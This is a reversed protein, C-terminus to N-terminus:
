PQRGTGPAELAGLIAEVLQPSGTFVDAPPQRFRLMDRYIVDALQSNIGWGALYSLRLNSDRNIDAGASWQGLDAKRGTYTAFLATTSPVGVERLSEAVPAYDPRDLRQQVEDVNIKLPEAQGMFVMDYGQGNRTNAWVTANPFSEFFTALESKVTRLDSEYLPVYLSFYGGPNLHAKVADFYEKSYLAATGKAFVDLPDSAIIDYKNKTTLVYHRADDYVIRTRPNNMVEYNQRAFFRTSTPPIVPEIECITIHEIGPYRTFTGASVGAGFGIGLVSKPNPHLLGPLHGVMRQLKMDYIETTAEVHGNVNIYVEGSNWRSIAVSSNRGEATYLITSQGTNIPMRRGYAILEGPIAGIGFLLVMSLVMSAALLGSIAVSRQDRVYPMLATFASIAAIALLVRQSQQTGITPVLILSVLLAGAIAGLTNAAYVKGVVKGPDQGPGAVTALALPFSAGWFLAPPLIAWLCRAMDLQFTFWPSSSLLPDIPWYPLSGAIMYATWAIGVTLLIQCWGLALRPRVTRSIWAGVTSGIALGILFVALIISFVYVTSGLMMGMLRTWVVEAGLASAGSLGITLYISGRGGGDAAAEAADPIHNRAPTRAALVFSIAAVILNIAVAALTAAGVGHMRLLYFGALLCGFVAGVTNTGYLLGWWSVGSRTSEIWRAAAPLSAGMLATPPLLCIGAVLARLFMNPLGVGNAAIYVRDILPVGVWVLVGFVAIGAEILGYVKLPHMNTRLRPLGISGLCLGGMFTALLVGMSITTSGIALQLMQYWVVEYILAACGSGFFLILLVPLFRSSSSEAPPNEALPAPLPQSM